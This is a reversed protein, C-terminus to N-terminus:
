SAAHKNARSDTPTETPEGTADTRDDRVPSGQVELQSMSQPQDASIEIQCVPKRGIRGTFYPRNDPQISVAFVWLSTLAALDHDANRLAQHRRRNAAIGDLADDPFGPAKCSARSTFRALLPGL